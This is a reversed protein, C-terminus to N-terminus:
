IKILIFMSSNTFLILLVSPSELVRPICKIEVPLLHSLLLSCGVFITRCRHIEFQRLTSLCAAGRNEVKNYYTYMLLYAEKSDAEFGILHLLDNNFSSGDVGKLTLPIYETSTHKALLEPQELAKKFFEQSKKEDMDRLLACKGGRREQQGHHPYLEHRPPVRLQRATDQM